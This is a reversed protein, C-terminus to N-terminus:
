AKSGNPIVPIILRFDGRLIVIKGGFPSDVGTNDRFTRDVSEFVYRHTMPAEDWIIITSRRILEALDSNKSISCTTSADVLLSIKFRSHATRGGPLITGAIGSSTTALAIMGKKKVSSLLARYLFTKGTGEPGDVFFTSNRGNNVNSSSPYDEMMFHHFENWLEMVGLIESVSQDENFQVRQMNPMHIQLREVALYIRSRSFNYIRWLAEPACVWRAYQKVEDINSEPCLMMNVRDPGKHIYKYLYKVSKVSSCIEVNIHCNYKLLLWPNYPVVWSNDVCVNRGRGLPVQGMDRRQYLPYCDNGQVTYPVFPKPFHRKCKGKQMCPSRPNITGCQGHIMHKLVSTYLEPQDSQLPIEAKVIQDYVDPSNLKDDDGLILLMHAHPLGRKQFEIVYAYAVVEELVGKNFIDDKFEEFKAHFVRSLLDPRDQPLQGPLLSNRIEDWSPNCTM